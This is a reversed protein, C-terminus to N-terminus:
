VAYARTGYPTCRAALTCSAACCSNRLARAARGLRNAVRPSEMQPPQAFPVAIACSSCVILWLVHLEEWTAPRTHWHWHVPAGRMRRARHGGHHLGPLGFSGGHDRRRPLLLQSAVQYVAPQGGRERQQCPWTSDDLQQRIWTHGLAGRCPISILRRSVLTPRGELATGIDVM